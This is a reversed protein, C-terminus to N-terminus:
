RPDHRSPLQRLRDQQTMAAGFPSTEAGKPTSANAMVVAVYPLLIALLVCIMALWLIGMIGTVGAAIFFATRALMAALYRRQRKKIDDSLPAPADTIRIAEPAGKRGRAM